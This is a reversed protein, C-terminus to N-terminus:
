HSFLENVPAFPTQEIVGQPTRFKIAYEFYGATDQLELSIAEANFPLNQFYYFGGLDPHSTVILHGRQSGTATASEYKYLKSVALKDQFMYSVKDVIPNSSVDKMIGSTEYIKIGLKTNASNILENSEGIYVKIVPDSFNTLHGTPHVDVILNRYIWANKVIARYKHDNRVFSTAVLPNANSFHIELRKLKTSEASDARDTIIKIEETGHLDLNPYTPTAYPMIEELEFIKNQAFSLTALTLLLFSILLHKTKM